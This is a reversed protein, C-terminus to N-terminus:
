IFGSNKNKCKEKNCQILKVSHSIMKLFFKSYKKIKKLKDM